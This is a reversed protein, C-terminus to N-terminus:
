AKARSFSTLVKRDQRSSKRLRALSWCYPATWPSPETASTPRPASERGAGYWALLWNKVQLKGVEERLSTSNETAFYKPTPSPGALRQDAPVWDADSKAFKFVKANEFLHLHRGTLEFVVAPSLRTVHVHFKRPKGDEEYAFSAQVTAWSSVEGQVTLAASGPRVLGADAWDSGAYTCWGELGYGGEEFCIHARRGLRIGDKELGAQWGLGGAIQRGDPQKM